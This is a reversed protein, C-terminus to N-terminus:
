LQFLELGAAFLIARVLSMVDIVLIDKRFHIWIAV